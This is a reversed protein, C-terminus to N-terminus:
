RQGGKGSSGRGGWERIDVGNGCSCVNRSESQKTSRERRGEGEKERGLLKRGEKSEDKREEKAADGERRGEKRRLM